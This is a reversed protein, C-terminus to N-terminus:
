EACFHHKMRTRYIKVVEAKRHHKKQTMIGIGYEEVECQQQNSGYAEYKSTGPRQHDWLYIPTRRGLNPRLEDAYTGQRVQLKDEM